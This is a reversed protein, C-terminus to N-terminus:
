HAFLLFTCPPRKVVMTDEVRAEWHTNCRSTHKKSRNHGEEAVARADKWDSDENEEVVPFDDNNELVDEEAMMRSSHFVGRDRRDREVLAHEVVSTQLLVFQRGQRM